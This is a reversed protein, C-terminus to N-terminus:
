DSSISVQEAQPDGPAEDHPQTGLGPRADVPTQVPISGIRLRIGSGVLGSEGFTLCTYLIYVIFCFKDIYIIYIYM